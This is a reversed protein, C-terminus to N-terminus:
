AIAYPAGLQTQTKCLVICKDRKTGKCIGLLWTMAQFFAFWHHSICCLSKAVHPCAAKTTKVGCRRKIGEICTKHVRRKNTTHDVCLETNLLREHGVRSLGTQSSTYSM